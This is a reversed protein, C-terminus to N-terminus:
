ADSDLKKAPRKKTYRSPQVPVAPRHRLHHCGSCLCQLDEMLERGGVRKYTLHHAELCETSGCSECKWASSKLRRLRKVRWEPTKLYFSYNRWWNSATEWWNKPPKPHPLLCQLIQIWLCHERWLQWNTKGRQSTAGEWLAKTYRSRVLYRSQLGSSELPRYHRYFRTVGSWDGLIEVTIFFRVWFRFFM